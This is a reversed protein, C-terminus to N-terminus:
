SNTIRRGYGGLASCTNSASSASWQATISLHSVTTTDKSVAATPVNVTAGSPLTTNLDTIVSLAGQWTGSVGSTLCILEGVVRWSKNTVGSAATVVVTALLTGAVGGLRLRFTLTPTATVSAIGWVVGYHSSGVQPANAEIGHIHILTETTSSVIVTSAVKTTPSGIAADITDMNTNIQSIDVNETATPKTLALISTSGSM